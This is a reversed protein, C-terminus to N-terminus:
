APRKSSKERFAPIRAAFGNRYRLDVLDVTVGTRALAALTRGHAAVFRALRADPEDRGLELTLAGGPGRTEVRWGGRPSLRVRTVTLSLPRLADSWAQHRAAVESARGAPGEFQPLEDRAEAAFVEGQLNVLEGDNWRALPEHEAIAVELRHPWQRRLAASRVWPVGELATRARALDMTFITGALEERIVAELHAGNARTLPTTVVVEGFAFAPQRVAFTVGGAALLLGAIAALTIALANMQKADDWM